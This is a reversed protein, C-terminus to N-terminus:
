NGPVIDLESEDLDARLPDETSRVFSKEHRIWANVLERYCDSLSCQCMIPPQQFRALLCARDSSDLFTFEGDAIKALLERRRNEEISELLVAISAFLAFRAGESSVSGATCEEIASGNWNLLFNAAFVSYDPGRRPSKLTTWPPPSNILFEGITSLDCEIQAIETDAARRLRFLFMAILPPWWMSFIRSYPAEFLGKIGHWELLKTISVAKEEFVKRSLTLDKEACRELQPRYTTIIATSLRGWLQRDIPLARAESHLMRPMRLEYALEFASTKERVSTDDSAIIEGLVTEVTEAVIVLNDRSVAHLAAILALAADRRGSALPTSVADRVTAAVVARRIAPNPVISELTRTAFLLINWREERSMQVAQQLLGSLAKDGAGEINRSQIQFALQAVVDWEQKAIHPVLVPLLGSATPYMSFLYSASFYELFTRHTFQYLKEGDPTTGTDTFVWARGACFEIFSSAAAEAQIPDDFVREQLYRATEAIM